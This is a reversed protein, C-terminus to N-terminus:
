EEGKHPFVPEYYHEQADRSGSMVQSPDPEEESLSSRIREILNRGARRRRPAPAPEAEQRVPETFVYEYPAPDQQPAFAPEHPPEPTLVGEGMDVGDNYGKEFRHEDARSSWKKARKAAWLRYPQWRIMWVAFDIVVGAACLLIALGLWNNGLWAWFTGSTDSSFVNYVAKVLTKIWGLLLDILADAFGNM